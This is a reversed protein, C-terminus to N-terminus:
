QQPMYINLLHVQIYPLVRQLSARHRRAKRAAGPAVRPPAAGFLPAGLPRPSLARPPRPRVPWAWVRRGAGRGVMVGGGAHGRGRRGRGNASSPPPAIVYAPPSPPYRIYPPPLPRAPLATQVPISRTTNTVPALPHARPSPPRPTHPPLSPPCRRRKVSIVTGNCRRPARETGAAAPPPHVCGGTGRRGCRGSPPPWAPGPAAPTGRRAPRWRPPLGPCGPRRAAHQGPAASCTLPQGRRVEGGGATGKRGGWRTGGHQEGRQGARGAPELVQVKDVEIGADHGVRM